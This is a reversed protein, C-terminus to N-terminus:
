ARRAAPEQSVEPGPRRQQRVAEAVERLELMARAFMEDAQHRKETALEVLARAPPPGQGESFRLMAIRLERESLQAAKEAALWRKFLPTDPHM